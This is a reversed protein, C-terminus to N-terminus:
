RIRRDQGKWYPERLVAKRVKGVGTRPLTEVFAFSRPIKYGGISRRCHDQLEREGATRGDALVVVAHVREGLRDDPVAIVASEAVAPHSALANEVEASYINEGGSIIMDKKRDVLAIYGEADRTGLDGTHLWGDRLVEETAEPRNWYGKMVNPARVVIEGVEGPAVPTGSDDVIRVQVGSLPRGCSRLLAPEAAARRHDAQDLVCITHTAETQGNGQALECPLM